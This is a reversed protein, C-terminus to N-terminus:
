FAESVTTTVALELPAVEPLEGAEIMRTVNDAAYKTLGGPVEDDDYTAWHGTHLAHAFKMLAVRFLMHGALMDFTGLPKHNICHPRSSEIFLLVFDEFVTKTAARLAEDIMAMQVHYGFDTISKRTGQASADACSKPDIIMLSDLSIVDPRVKVWIDSYQGDFGPQVPWGGLPVRVKFFISHEMLGRLIGNKVNPHALLQDACRQLSRLDDPTLPTMKAAITEAKWTQAAKTTYNTFEEPRIAFLKSFEAEGAILHHLAKGFNFHKKSVYPVRDPNLYFNDWAKLLCGKPNIIQRLFSSSVEVGDCIGGHYSLGEGEMPIGSYIGPETIREGNWPKVLARIDFTAM